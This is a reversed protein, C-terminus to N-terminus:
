TTMPSRNDFHITFYLCDNSQRNGSMKKTQKPIRYLASRMRSRLIKGRVDGSPCIRDIGSDTLYDYTFTRKDVHITFYRCDNSQRNSCENDENGQPSQKRRQANKIAFKERLSRRLSM